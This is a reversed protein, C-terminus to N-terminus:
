CNMLTLIVLKNMSTMKAMNFSMYSRIAELEYFIHFISYKKIIRISFRPQCRSRLNLCTFIFRSCSPYPLSIILRINEKNGQSGVSRVKPVKITTTKFVHYTFYTGQDIIVFNISFIYSKSIAHFTSYKSLSSQINFTEWFKVINQM